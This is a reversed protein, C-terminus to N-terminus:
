PEAKNLPKYAAHSMRPLSSLRGGSQRRRGMIIRHAFKCPLKVKQSAISAGTASSAAYLQSRLSRGRTSRCQATNASRASPEICVARCHDDAHEARDREAVRAIQYEFPPRLIEAM